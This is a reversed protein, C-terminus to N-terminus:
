LGLALTADDCPEPFINSPSGTAGAAMDGGELDNDGMDVILVGGGNVFDNLSAQCAPDNQAATSEVIGAGNSSFLM